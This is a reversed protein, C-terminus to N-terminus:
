EEPKGYKTSYQLNEVGKEKIIFKDLYIEVRDELRVIFFKKNVSHDLYSFKIQKYNDFGGVMKIVEANDVL